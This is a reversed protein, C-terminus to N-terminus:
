QVSLLGLLPVLLHELAMAFSILAALNVALDLLCGTM